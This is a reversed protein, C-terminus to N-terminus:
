FEVRASEKMGAVNAGADDYANYNDAPKNSIDDAMLEALLEAEFEAEENGLGEESLWREADLAAAAGSGASTVAQRYVADSVDGAAFIGPTSTKTSRGITQLYGAHEEDFDVIEELFSTTPTHGIAVFVAACDIREDEGTETNSLLAGTVFM